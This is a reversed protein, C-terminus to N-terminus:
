SGDNQGRQLIDPIDSLREIQWREVLAEREDFNCAQLDSKSKTIHDNVLEQCLVEAARVGLTDDASVGRLAVHMRCAPLLASRFTEAFKTYFEDVNEASVVKDAERKLMRRVIDSVVARHALALEASKKEPTPQQEKAPAPAPAPPPTPEVQKDVIEDLRDAPYMNSPVLYIDGQKVPLPNLGEKERIDNVSLWGWQRGVAYAAYRSATDGRLLGDLNFEISMTNRELPGILKRNLEMEWRVLWRRLTHQVYDLQQMEINTFTSRSLDAIKHPPV